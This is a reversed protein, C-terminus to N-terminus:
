MPVFEAKSFNGEDILRRGGVIDGDEAPVWTAWNGSPILGNAATASFGDTISNGTGCVNGTQGGGADAGFEVRPSHRTKWPFCSRLILRRRNEVFSRQRISQVAQV